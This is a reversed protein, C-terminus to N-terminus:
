LTPSTFFNKASFFMGTRNYNEPTIAIEIRKGLNPLLRLKDRM